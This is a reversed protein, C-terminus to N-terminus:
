LTTFLPPGAQNPDPLTQVKFGYEEAGDKLDFEEDLIVHVMPNKYAEPINCWPHVWCRDANEHEHGLRHYSNHNPIFKKCQGYKTWSWDIKRPKELIVENNIRERARAIKIIEQWSFREGEKESLPTAQLCLEVYGQRIWPTISFEKGLFVKSASSAHVALTKIALKRVNPMSWKSSLRLISTWEEERWNHDIKERMRLSKPYLLCLLRTFDLAKVGELFVPNEDSTGAGYSPSIPLFYLYEFNESEKVLM